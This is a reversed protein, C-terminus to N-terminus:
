RRSTVSGATLVEVPSGAQKSARNKDFYLKGGKAYLSSFTNADNYFHLGNPITDSAIEKFYIGRTNRLTTNVKQKIAAFYKDSIRNTLETGLLKIQNGDLGFEEVLEDLDIKIPIFM